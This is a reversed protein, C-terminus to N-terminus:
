FFDLQMNCSSDKLDLSDRPSGSTSGNIAKHVKRSVIQRPKIVLLDKKPAINIRVGSM